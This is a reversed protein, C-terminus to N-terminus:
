RDLPLWRAYSYKVANTIQFASTIPGQSVLSGCDKAGVTFRWNLPMKRATFTVVGASTIKRVTYNMQGQTSLAILSGLALMLVLLGRLFRRTPESLHTPHGAIIVSTRKTKTPRM